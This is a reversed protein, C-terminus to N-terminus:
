YISAKEMPLICYVNKLELELLVYVEMEEVIEIGAIM